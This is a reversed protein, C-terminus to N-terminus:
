ANEIRQTKTHQISDKEEAADDQDYPTELSDPPKGEASDPHRLLGLGANADEGLGQIDEHAYEADDLTIVRRNAALMHNVAELAYQQLRYPRGESKDIIFELAAPDYRYYEYIPEVLLQLAQERNFPGLQIENFLNFWPSEVRDWEKSIQIGAVVAGLTAAFDRMFIRRLRQQVLRSYNSMVDMEDLLLILRLHKNPHSIESYTQLAQIILRLDRSFERDSYETAPMSNYFLDQLEPKLWQRADPLTLAGNLIEELLFHFFSEETTGELDVYLPIFWYEDDDVERLRAALQYLITTKGIRREGHIMISNNHLTDIIRQLLDHRGFFMDQRRVPEGSVFPNYGRILAERKRRRSQVIEISMYGFGILGIFGTILLAIFMDRRIPALFPLTVTPPPLIVNVGVRIPESYNFAQDRALLEVLYKGEQQFEPLQLFLGDLPMWEGIQGPGSLRYLIYLDAAATFLDGAILRLGIQTDTQIQILDSSVPTHAGSIGNIRVWPSTNELRYFTLGDKGGIWYSNDRTRTIAFISALSLIGEVNYTEWTRGDYRTLGGESGIWLSGDAPDTYLTYLINSPLRAQSTFDIWEGDYWYNLGQRNVAVWMGGSRDPALAVIANGSVTNTQTASAQYHRWIDDEHRVFLGSDLTGAWIRKMSDLALAQINKGALEEVAIVQGSEFEYYALGAATGIWLNSQDAALVNVSDSPLSNVKVPQQWQSAGEDYRAVGKQTAAWINGQHDQILHTIQDDPLDTQIHFPFQIHFPLEEEEELQNLNAIFITEPNVFSPKAGHDKLRIGAGRTGIWLRNNSDVLLADIVNIGPFKAPDHLEKLWINQNYRFAGSATGFWVSGDQDVAVAQVFRTTLGVDGSFPILQGEMMGFAGDGNTGGWLDGNSDGTLAQINYPNGEANETVIKIWAGTLPELRALGETAGIWVPGSPDLWITNIDNGPLGEETTIHTWAQRHYLWIGHDTGVWVTDTYSALSQVSRDVLRSVPVAESGNWIYLGQDTGVWLQGDVAHLAQVANPLQFLATWKQGNWEAVYGLDTGAWITTQKSDKALAKVVGEVFTEPGKWSRWEGTFRSIGNETGFWIEGNSSLIALVNNSALGENEKYILWPSDASQALLRNTSFPFVSILHLFLLCLLSPAILSRRRNPKM